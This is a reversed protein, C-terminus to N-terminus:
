WADTSQKLDLDNTDDDDEDDEDDIDEDIDNKNDIHHHVEYPDLNM